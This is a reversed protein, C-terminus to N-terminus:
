LILYKGAEEAVGVVLFCDIAVTIRSPTSFVSQIVWEGFTELLVASIVTLAGGFLLKLILGLPEKEIKDQKYVQVILVIGPIIALWRLLSYYM